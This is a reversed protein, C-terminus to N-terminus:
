TPEPFSSNSSHLSKIPIKEGILLKSSHNCAVSLLRGIRGSSEVERSPTGAKVDPCKRTPRGRLAKGSRTSVGVLSCKRHHQFRVLHRV